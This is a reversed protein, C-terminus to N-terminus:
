LPLPKIGGRSNSDRRRRLFSFALKKAKMRPEFSKEKRNALQRLPPFTGATTDAFRATEASYKNIVILM